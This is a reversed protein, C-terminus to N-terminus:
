SSHSAPASEGRRDGTAAISCCEDSAEDLEDGILAHLRARLEDGRTELRYRGAFDDAALGDIAAENAALETRLEDATMRFAADQAFM